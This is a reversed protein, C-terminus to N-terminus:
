EELVLSIDEYNYGKQELLYIIRQRLDRGSYKSQYRKKAKALDSQLNEMVLSHPIEPLKQVIAAAKSQSFGNRYLFAFVADNQAKQNSFSKGHLFKKAMRDVQDDSDLSTLPLNNIITPSIGKKLLDNKVRKPGYGRHLAYEMYDNAFTLDNILNNDLLRKVISNITANEVKKNRLRRRIEMETYSHRAVLSRAYQQASAVEARQKIRSIEEISVKKGEFLFFDTFTDIDIKIEEQTSFLIKISKKNHAIKTITIEKSTAVSPM